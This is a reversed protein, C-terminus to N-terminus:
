NYAVARIDAMSSIVQGFAIGPATFRGGSTRRLALSLYGNNGLAPLFSLIYSPITFQGASAKAACPFQIRSGDLALTSSDTFGPPIPIASGGSIVVVDPDTGGAWTITLDQARPISDPITAKNSWSLSAVQITATFPGVDSGGGRNDVTYTGAKFYGDPETQGFNAYYLGTLPATAGYEPTVQKPGNPGNIDLIKGADRVSGSVYTYHTSVMCSNLSPGLFSGFLDDFRAASVSSWDLDVYSPSYMAFTASTFDTQTQMESATIGQPISNSLLIIGFPKGALVASVDEASFMGPATCVGRDSSVVPITSFNSIVGSVRAVLSVACRQVDNPVQFNVQDLGAWGPARGWYSVPAATGGVFIEIPPGVVGAQAPENDPFSVAGLGTGWLIAPQGAVLPSSLLKLHYNVDTVLAGGTGNQSLTLIGFASPVVLIPFPASTQSDATVVVTGQGLPTNSPLVFALQNSTIALPYGDVSVNNIAVRVSTGGLVSGLPFGSSELRSQNFGTGRVVVISGPAVGSSPLGAPIYSAGSRIDLITPQACACAAIVIALLVSCRM